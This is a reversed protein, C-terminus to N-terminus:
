IFIKNKLKSFFFESIDIKDKSENNINTKIRKNTDNPSKENQKNMEENFTESINGNM